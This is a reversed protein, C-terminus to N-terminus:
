LGAERLFQTRESESPVHQALRNLFDRRGLGEAATRKVLVKAIPGMSKTLARTARELDDPSLADRGGLSSPTSGARTGAPDLTRPVPTPTGAGHVATLFADRDKANPLSEALTTSLGIVTNHERAARRVLVRAVPGVYKTLEREVRALVAADWGTPPATSVVSPASAPTSTPASSPQSRATLQSPEAATSGSRPRDAIITAESVSDSVPQDYQALIAARFAGASPFRDEARKMLARAVVADYRSHCRATPMCSAPEPDYYCVSHMIAEATGKFPAQGALLHYFLVGASFIDVRHDIPRGLYYEPAIYGPTGMVVSTQTRDLTDIRAIGFDALKIRGNGMIIVNAPKVDRHWVSHNHAFELADLLQSMLSVIDSEDFPTQRTFYERLSNGEVCEMAIYAYQDDEGYEYVSVIGPHNLAGAAQAEKRFRAAVMQAKDDDEILERRITKIAVQRKIVPDFGRYVVGMAGRGLIGTIPYKGLREPVNM